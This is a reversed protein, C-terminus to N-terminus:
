AIVVHARSSPTRPQTVDYIQFACANKHVSRERSLDHQRRLSCITPKLTTWDGCNLSRLYTEYYMADEPLSLAASTQCYTSHTQCHMNVNRM